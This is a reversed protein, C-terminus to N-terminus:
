LDNMSGLLDAARKRFTHQATKGIREWSKYALNLRPNGALKAQNRALFDWYLSNFPCSNPGSKDNVDYKCSKCYNSMKNIYNGGTAYPKSAVLGGDGFQSMGLTNPLEVWEHADAYVSLFWNHM